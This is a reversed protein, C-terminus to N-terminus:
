DDGVQQAKEAAKKEQQAIKLSGQLELARAEAKAADEQAGSSAGTLTSQMFACDAYEASDPQCAAKHQAVSNLQSQM